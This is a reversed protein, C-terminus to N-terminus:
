KSGKQKKAQQYMAMAEEINKPEKQEVQGSSGGSASMDMAPAAAQQRQQPQQKGQQQPQQSGQYRQAIKVAQRAATMLDCNYGIVENGRKVEYPEIIDSLIARSTQDMQYYFPAFQALRLTPGQEQIIERSRKRVAEQYGQQVQRNMSAVWQEAEARSQFPRDPDDPNTFSVRGNQEDKHYLDAVSWNKIGNQQFMQTIERKAQSDIDQILKKQVAEYDFGESGAAPGGADESGGQQEPEPASQQQPAGLAEPEREQEQQRGGGVGAGADEVGAGTAERYDKRALMFAESLDVPDTQAQTNGEEPEVLENTEIGDM